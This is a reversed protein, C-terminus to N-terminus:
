RPAERPQPTDLYRILEGLNALGAVDMARLGALRAAAVDHQPHDGVYLAAAAPVRLRELAVQFIRLDPKAAGADSPLVVSDPELGLARLLEPLRRDFNSVVATALGRARLAALLERAGARPRWAGPGSFHRWLADFCADFGPFASRPDASRFTERVLRRWWDRELEPVAEADADPFLMPTSERFARAFADDLRAAPFAAGHARAQRAYTEGVPERLEILTGVADFLVARLRTMTAADTGADRVAERPGPRRAIPPRTPSARPSPLKLRLGLWTRSDLPIWAYRPGAAM